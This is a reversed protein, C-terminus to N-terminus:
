LAATSRYGRGLGKALILVVPAPITSRLYARHEESMGDQIWAFFRGAEKPSRQRLKKEVPPWAPTAAFEEFLPGVENEEHDLHTNTVETAREVAARAADADADAGSAVFADIAQKAEALAAGMAQHESEMAATLDVPVGHAVLAPWLHTDESRHHYHLEADLFDWAAGIQPARAAADPRGLADAIRRLDRRVAGHIVTNMNLPATM